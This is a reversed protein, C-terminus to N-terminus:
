LLFPVLPMAMEMAPEQLEKPLKQNALEKEFANRLITPDREITRELYAAFADEDSMFDLLRTVLYDGARLFNERLHRTRIELHALLQPIRPDSLCAADGSKLATVM